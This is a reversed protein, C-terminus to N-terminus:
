VQNRQAAEAAREARIDAMLIEDQLKAAYAEDALRQADQDAALDADVSGSVGAGGLPGPRADTSIDTVIALAILLNEAPPRPKTSGDLHCGLCVM